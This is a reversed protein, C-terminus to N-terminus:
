NHPLMLSVAGRSMFLETVPTFYDSYQGANFGFLEETGHSNVTDVCKAVHM